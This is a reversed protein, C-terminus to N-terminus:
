RSAALSLCPSHIDALRSHKPDSTKEFEKQVGNTRLKNNTKHELTHVCCGVDRSDVRLAAAACLNSM